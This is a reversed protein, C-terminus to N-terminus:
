YIYFSLMIQSGFVLGFFLVGTIISLSINKTLAYLGMISLFLTWLVVLIELTLMIYATTEKIIFPSPNNSFLYEGFFVLELPFLIVLAFLNPILSYSLVAYSDRFRIGKSNVHFFTKTLFSFFVISFVTASLVFLYNKFTHVSVLSSQSGALFFFLSNILFKISVLLLIFNIFNKQESFIIKTFAKRPSEILNELLKWFDLNYVRERLYEKCNTCNLQYFPNATHCTKCIVENKM